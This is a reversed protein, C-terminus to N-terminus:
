ALNMNNLMNLAIKNSNPQYHGSALENKFYAVRAENVEPSIKLASKLSDLQKSANSFHVNDNLSPHNITQEARVQQNPKLRSDADIPKLHASDNIQNVMFIDKIVNLMTIPEM